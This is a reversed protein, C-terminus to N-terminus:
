PLGGAGSRPLCGPDCRWSSSLWPRGFGNDDSSFDHNVRDSRPARSENKSRPALLVVLIWAYAMSISLILAGQAVRVSLPWWTAQVLGVLGTLIFMATGLSVVLTRYAGSWAIVIPVAVALILLSRALIAALMVEPEPAVIGTLEHRFLDGTTRAFVLGCSMTVLPYALWALAVRWWTLRLRRRVGTSVTVPESSAPRVLLTAAGAALLCPLLAFALVTATGGFETLLAADLQPIVASLVYTYAALTFWRRRTSGHLGTALPCLSAAMVFSAAVTVALTLDRTAETPVSPFRMGLTTVLAGSITMGVFYAVAIGRLNGVRSPPNGETIM